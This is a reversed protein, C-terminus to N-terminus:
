KKMDILLRFVKEFSDKQSRKMERLDDKVERIDEKIDTRLETIKCTTRKEVERVEVKTARKSITTGGAIMGGGLLTLLAIMISVQYWTLKGSNTGNPM